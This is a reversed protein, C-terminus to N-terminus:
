SFLWGVLIPAMGAILCGYIPNAVDAWRKGGFAMGYGVWCFAAILIAVGISTMIIQFSTATQTVRAQVAGSTGTGAFCQLAFAYLVVALGTYFLAKLWITAQRGSPASNLAVVQSQM